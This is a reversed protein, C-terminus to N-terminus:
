AIMVPRMFATAAHGVDFDKEQQTVSAATLDIKLEDHYNVARLSRLSRDSGSQKLNRVTFFRIKIAANEFQVVLSSNCLNL